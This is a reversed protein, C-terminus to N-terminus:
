GPQLEIWFVSGMGPESEVGVRGGMRQIGKHVIALGLGTGPYDAGHLREFLGFIKERFEPAIGIGQDKVHFRVREGQREAWISVDPATGPHIFKLANSVLNNIIHELTARHGMVVPLPADVSVAAKKGRIEESLVNLVNEMVKDLSVKEMPLDSQHIRSFVLLDDILIGLHKSSRNIRALYDQANQDLKEGYDEAIVHAFSSMARLPARLDHAVAYTFLEMQEKSEKLQLSQQRMQERSTKVSILNRARALIEEAAFPKIAYDQAGNRLLKIRLADDAKASLVIIPIEAFEGRTRIESIMQDGGMKPMMIDTVILDPKIANTKELGDQGNEATEVRFEDAFTEAVFRRMEPNDEVVLVLPRDSTSDKPTPAPSLPKLEELTGRLVSQNIPEIEIGVSQRVRAQEPAKLPLQVQFLAGGGPAESVSITGGHLTVFDRAISLGLGTGGFQRTTGGDAQRFREFIQERVEPRIGPGSD